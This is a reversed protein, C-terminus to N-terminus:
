TVKTLPVRSDLNYKDVILDLRGDSVFYRARSQTHTFGDSVHTRIRVNYIILQPSVNRPRILIRHHGNGSAFLAPSAIKAGAYRHLGRRHARIRTLTPAHDFDPAM